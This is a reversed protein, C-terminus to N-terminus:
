WGRSQRAFMGAPLKDPLERGIGGVQWGVPPAHVQVPLKPKVPPFSPTSNRAHLLNEQHM